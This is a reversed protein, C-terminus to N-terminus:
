AKPESSGVACIPTDGIGYHKSTCLGTLHSFTSKEINAKM